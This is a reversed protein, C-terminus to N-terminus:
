TIGLVTLIAEESLHWGLFSRVMLEVVKKLRDVAVLFLGV